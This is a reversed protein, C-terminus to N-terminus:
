TATHDRHQAGLCRAHLSPPDGAGKVVVHKRVAGDETVKQCDEPATLQMSTEDTVESSHDETSSAM